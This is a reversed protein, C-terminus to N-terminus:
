RFSLKPAPSTIGAGQIVKVLDDIQVQAPDFLISAQETAFNVRTDGVGPIKKLSREVSLACNACSMGTIPLTVNETAM